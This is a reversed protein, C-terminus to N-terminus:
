EVVEIWNGKEKAYYDNNYMAEALSGPLYYRGLFSAKLLIQFTKTKRPKLGFYYNVRDDRIDTYDAVGLKDDGIETFRTNVIEWGSPIMQTLAIDRVNFDTANTVSIKAVFDTALPLSSPDLKQGESDLYTVELLLDREEAKESGIAPRYQQVLNIYVNNDRNNQITLNGSKANDLKLIKISKDTSIQNRTGAIEYAFDFGKGGQSKLFHSLSSLSLAISQTSYWNKDSLHKGIESALKTAESTKGLLTYADLLISANRLRHGFRDRYEYTWPDMKNQRLLNEAAKTQGVLAYASALRLGALNPLNSSERLRNMSSLDPKGALSLTYLRYAEADISSNASRRSESQNTQYQIWRSIMGPPIAYGQKEAEVIFNGIYSSVYPSSNVDSPWYAFGGDSRQLTKIREITSKVNNESEAIQGQDLDAIDALYLQPFARSTIQEGCGHPYSILYNLRDSINLDPLSSLELQTSLLEGSPINELPITLKANPELIKKVLHSEPTNPNYLDVEATYKAQHSGSTATIDITAIGSRDSTKVTFYAEQEGPQAFSLYEMTTGIPQLLDNTKIEIKVNKIDKEMAFVSVPIQITESPSIKRPVVGLAMLPKSVTITKEDSGYASKGRNGAVVMARVSGVYNPMTLQHKAKKGPALKFPGLFSVVPKFRQAKKAGAIKAEEGGGISFVQDIRGNYAGIVHDYLDWTKVGLAQKKYFEDWPNPTSFRTLDLLGEDVVAITYTMPLGSEESVEVTYKEEPQIKDPAKLRPSLKTDGDYVSVPNIGYLRLPLDNETQSHPQLYHISIYANPTMDRTVPLQFKTFDKKPEIWVSQLIKNGNEVTVLARGDKTSPFSVEINEGVKYEEKDTTFALINAADGTKNSRGRWSPWDIYITTGSYHGSVPNYVRVLYSGWDPYDVRFNFSGKGSANTSVTTSYVESNSRGTVFSSLNNESQNWWWSFKIKYVKIELNQVALPEGNKTVTAVQIVHDVDTDLQRFYNKAEPSKIGVYSDYPSYDTSYADISSSGGKEFVHTIYTARLMGPTEIKDGITSTFSARGSEDLNGDFVRKEETKFESAPDDFRYGGFGEFGTHKRSLTLDVTAKLNPAPAGHLWRASLDAQDNQVDLNIKLRNPKITEIPISKFFSAGGVDMRVMYTGTPSENTTTTTFCYFGDGTSSKTQADVTTGRPDVISFNVPHDEPLPNDTDKVVFCLHLTDGPRWIGRDGYIFGQLGKKSEHGEVSFQSTQLANYDKLSLYARNNDKSAEIFKIATKGKYTVIGNHDSKDSHVIQKQLSIFDVNAGQIPKGTILDSVYVTTEGSEGQKTILAMNTSLINQFIFRDYQYYGKDCPNNREQWNYRIWDWYGDQYTYDQDWYSEDVKDESILHVAPIIQAESTQCDTVAYEPKFSLQIQYIAGPDSAVMSSLDISYTKWDKQKEKPLLLTQTAVPRGFYKLDETSEFNRTMLFSSVNNQFIKIVRVDVARLSVAQFRYSVEDSYPVIYGESLSKIAPKLSPFNLDQQIGAFVSGNTFRLGEYINLKRNGNLRENPYIKLVNGDIILQLDESLSDISVLGNLNQNPDLPDSFNIIVGQEPETLTQLRIIETEGRAPVYMEESGKGDADIPSGNWSINVQSKNELRQIPSIKFDFRDGDTTQDFTVDLNKNGQKSKLIKQVDDAKVIDSTSIYGVIDYENENEDTTQLSEISVLYTLPDIYTTFSFADKTVELDPYLKKLNLKFEFSGSKRFREDPIFALNYPDTLITRGKTNPSVTLIDSPLDVNTEFERVAQNLTIEVPNSRRTLHQTFGSVYESLALVEEYNHQESKKCSLMSSLLVVVCLFLPTTKM